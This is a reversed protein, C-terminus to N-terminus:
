VMHKYNHKRKPLTGTRFYALSQLFMLGSDLIRGPRQYVNGMIKHNRSIEVLSSVLRMAVQWVTHSPIASPKAQLISYGDAIAAFV